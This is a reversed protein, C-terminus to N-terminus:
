SKIKQYSAAVQDSIKEYLYKLHECYSDKTAINKNKFHSRARCGCGCLYKYECASCEEINDANALRFNNTIKRNLSKASFDHSLINGMAFEKEHLLHCPYVTGDASISLMGEGAGCTLRCELEGGICIEDSSVGSELMLRSLLRLDHEDPIFEHFEPEDYVSLLSFNIEVDLNQALLVYENFHKINKKHITPVIRVNIGASKINRVTDIIKDFIGPNRIFTSNDKSFGDMSVNIVDVIGKYQLFDAYITGNTILDVNDFKLDKKAYHLLVPLDKRLLPEGGSIAINKVGLERLRKLSLKLNEESPEYSILKRRDEMSYCGLCTLNCKNSVHFYASSYVPERDELETFSCIDSIFDLELLAELLEENSSITEDSLKGSNVLENFANEGGASLGIVSSNDMNGIIPINHIKFNRFNPNIYYTKMLKGKM